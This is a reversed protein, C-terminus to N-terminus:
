DILTVEVRRAQAADGSGTLAEPKRLEISSEPVNLSLLVDRVAFARDKSLAENVEASGSADTYGSIVAKKGSNVAAVVDLLAQASGEPLASQGTAFYFAVTGNDVVVRSGDDNAATDTAPAIETETIVITESAVVVESAPKKAGSSQAASFWVVGIVTFAILVTVILLAIKSDTDKNESM